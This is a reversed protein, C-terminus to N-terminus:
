RQPRAARTAANLDFAVVPDELEDPEVRTLQSARALM